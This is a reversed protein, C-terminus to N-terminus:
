DIRKFVYDICEQLVVIMHMKNENKKHTFVNGVMSNTKDKMEGTAGGFDQVLM